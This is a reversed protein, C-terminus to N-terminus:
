QRCGLIDQADATYRRQQIFKKVCEEKLQNFDHISEAALCKYWLKAEEPLVIPFFICRYKKDLYYADMMWKYSEIHDDPDGTGDYKSIEPINKGSPLKYDQINRALPSNDSTLVM